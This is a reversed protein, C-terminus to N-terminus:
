IIIRKNKLYCQVGLTYPSILISNFVSFILSIYSCLWMSTFKAITLTGNNYNLDSLIQNGYERHGLWSPTNFVAVADKYLFLVEKSSPGTALDALTTSCVSKMQSFPYVGQLHVDQLGGVLSNGRFWNAPAWSYVSQIETSSYSRGFSHGSYSVLGDSSPTGTRSSQPIHLVEENGNRGPGCQGSTITGSPIGDIPWIYSNSM